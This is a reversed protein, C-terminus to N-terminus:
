SKFIKHDVIHLKQEFNLWFNCTNAMYNIETYIMYWGIPCNFPASLNHWNCVEHYFIVKCYSLVFTLCVLIRLRRYGNWNNSVHKYNKKQKRETLIHCVEYKIWLNMFESISTNM